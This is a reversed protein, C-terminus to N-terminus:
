LDGWKIIASFLVWLAYFGAIVVGFALLDNWTSTIAQWIYDFRSM